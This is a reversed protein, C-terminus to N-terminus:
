FDYMVSDFHPELLQLLARIASNHKELHYVQSSYTRKKGPLHEWFITGYFYITLFSQKQNLYLYPTHEYYALDLKKAAEGLAINTYWIQLKKVLCIIQAIMLSHKLESRTM